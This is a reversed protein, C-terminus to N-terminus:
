HRTESTPQRNAKALIEDSTKTWVFPHKRDNWGTIFQRIKANLDKVSTFIGRRIAQRDIIGFWVEVLNLWSGSTPTFHVHFRPRKELWTKVEPTKHTAYNDMVLHLDREPYARDLQRLFSLFEQRRHKPKVAGTVHGTAVDLAAFLTTTGHRKYDHTRKETDGIRMPLMPATRDLAQIQSKEDVCLVIANEPPALYLGVVDTVKGVLEPDTSFKFTESKWPQVGYERWARAVTANGVGLRQALLRSSWHTVGYKKPPATLTAAVIEAHDLHKPRGSRPADSLGAIGAEAYRKRWKWVSTTTTGVEAAIRSNAVGESALLVIRARMSLGARISTSRAWSVLEVRDVDLLLLAAAPSNAM